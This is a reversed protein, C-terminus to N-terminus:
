VQRLAEAGVGSATGVARVGPATGEARVCRVCHGSGECAQRM